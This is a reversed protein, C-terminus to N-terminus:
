KCIPEDAKSHLKIKKDFFLGFYEPSLYFAYKPPPVLNITTDIERWKRIDDLDRMERLNWQLPCCNEKQLTLWIRKKPIVICKTSIVFNRALNKKWKLQQFYDQANVSLHFASINIFIIYVLMNELFFVSTRKKRVTCYILM